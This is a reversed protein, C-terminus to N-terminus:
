ESDIQLRTFWDDASNPTIRGDEKGAGVVQEWGYPLAMKQLIEETATQALPIEAKTPVCVDSGPAALCEQPAGNGYSLFYVYWAANHRCVQDISGCFDPVLELYSSETQLATTYEGRLSVETLLSSRIWEVAIGQPIIKELIDRRLVTGTLEDDLYEKEFPSWFPDLLILRSPRLKPAVAGAAIGDMVKLTLLTAMQNGLSHGAVRIESGEFDALAAVYDEYFLDSASQTPMNETHYNGEADRWRMKHESEATWIKDEADWVADEDAFPHWYYIGVNWGDDIWKQALDIDYEIERKEDIVNFWFTLPTDAQMPTWGHVFIIVPQNPDYYPNPNDAEAKQSAQNRGYWYLGYEKEVALKPEQRNAIALFGLGVVAVLVFFFLFYRKKVRM